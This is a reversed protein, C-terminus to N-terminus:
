RVRFDATHPRRVVQGALFALAYDVIEPHRPSPLDSFAFHGAAELVVLYAPANTQDWIGGPRRLFPLVGLDRTGSQYMVPVRVHALTRQRAFPHAYPSLALVATVGPIKWSPWAGACGLATYGGLSHGALVFRSWDVPYAPNQRLADVVAVLDDRRSRYTTDSWNNTRTLGIEPKLGGRWARSTAMSDAHEPAIVLWGAAAIAETLFKSQAAMGHLGHSFLLLPRPGTERPRWVVVQRGGLMLREGSQAHAHAATALILAFALLRM